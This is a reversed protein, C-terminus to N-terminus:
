ILWGEDNVPKIQGICLEQVAACNSQLKSMGVETLRELGPSRPTPPAVIKGAFEQVLENHQTVTSQPGHSGDSWVRCFLQTPLM